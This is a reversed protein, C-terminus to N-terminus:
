RGYKKHYKRHCVACLTVGNSVDYKLEPYQKYQKIHHAHLDNTSNCEVCKQDREKVMTAWATHKFGRQRKSINTHKEYKYIQKLVIIKPKQNDHKIGTSFFYPNIKREYIENCIFNLISSVDTNDFGVFNDDIGFALYEWEYVEELSGDPHSIEIIPINNREAIEDAFCVNYMDLLHEFQKPVAFVDIGKNKDFSELHIKWGLYEYIEYIDKNFVKNDKIYQHEKIEKM